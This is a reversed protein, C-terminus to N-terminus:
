ASRERTAQLAALCTAPEDEFALDGRPREFGAIVQALAAAMERGAANPPVVGSWFTAEVVDEVDPGM